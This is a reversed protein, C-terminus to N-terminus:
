LLSMIYPISICPALSSPSLLEVNEVVSIEYLNNECWKCKVKKTQSNHEKKHHKGITNHQLGTCWKPSNLQKTKKRKRGKKSACCLSKLTFLQVLNLHKLKQSFWYDVKLKIKKKIAMFVASKMWHSFRCSDSSQM